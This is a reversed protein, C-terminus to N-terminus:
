AKRDRARLSHQDKQSTSALPLMECSGLQGGTLHGLRQDKAAKVCMTYELVSLPLFTRQLRHPAKPCPQESIPIQPNSM